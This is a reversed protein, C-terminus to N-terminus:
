EIRMRVESSLPISNGFALPWIMHYTYNVRVVVADGSQYATGTCSGWTTAPAAAPRQCSTNVSLDTASLGGAMSRVRSEVLSTDGPTTISMRAGERAANIVTMNSYLGMGFDVMGAVILLFLPIILAFEVLSQGGQHDSRSRRRSTWRGTGKGGRQSAQM